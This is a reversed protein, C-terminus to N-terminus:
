PELDEEEAPTLALGLARLLAAREARPMRCLACGRREWEEARAIRPLTRVRRTPPCYPCAILEPEM